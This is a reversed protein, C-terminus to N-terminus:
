RKYPWFKTAPFAVFVKYERGSAASKKRLRKLLSKRLMDKFVEDVSARREIEQCAQADGGALYLNILEYPGLQRYDKPPKAKVLRHNRRVTGRQSVYM